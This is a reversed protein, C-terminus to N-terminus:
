SVSWHNSMRVSVYGGSYGTSFALTITPNTSSNNGITYTPMSGSSANTNSYVTWSGSYNTAWYYVDRYGNYQSGQLHLFAQQGNGATDLTFVKGNPNAIVRYHASGLYASGNVNIAADMGGGKQLYASGSTRFNVMDTSADLYMTHTNSDSEVRFDGTEGRENFVAGGGTDFIFNDALSPSQGSNAGGVFHGIRVKAQNSRIYSGAYQGFNGNYDQMVYGVSKDTDTYSGGLYIWETNGNGSSEGFIHYRGAPRYYNVAAASSVTQLTGQGSGPSKGIGVNNQSADVKIMNANNSSEVRFDADNRGTENFTAGGTLTYFKIHQAEATDEINLTNDGTRYHFYSSDGASGSQHYFRLGHPGGLVQDRDGLAIIAEGNGAPSVHLMERPLNTGIGVANASADVFLMNANNDSEIRFDVDAGPENFVTGNEAIVALSTSSGPLASNHGVVVGRNTQNNDSDVLLYLAEPSVIAFNSGGNTKRIESYADSGTVENIIIKGGEFSADATFAPSALPAAGSVESVSITGDAFENNDSIFNALTRAKTM